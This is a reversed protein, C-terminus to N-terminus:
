GPRLKLPARRAPSRRTSSAPATHPSRPPTSPRSPLSLVWPWSELLAASLLSLPSEWHPFFDLVCLLKSADILRSSHLSTKVGGYTAFSPIWYEVVRQCHLAFRCFTPLLLSSPVPNAACGRAYFFAGDRGCSTHFSERVRHLMTRRQLHIRIRLDLFWRRSHPHQLEAASSAEYEEQLCLELWNDPLQAFWSCVPGLRHAWITWL